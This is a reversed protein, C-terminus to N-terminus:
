AARQSAKAKEIELELGLEKMKRQHELEETYLRAHVKVEKDRLKAMSTVAVILAALALVSLPVFVGADM